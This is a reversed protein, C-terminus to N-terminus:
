RIIVLQGTKTQGDIGRVVYVYVGSRVEEGAGNRAYWVIKGLGADDEGQWVREGRVNFVKVSAQSPLNVFTIGSADTGTRGAGTGSQPGHPRFPVPFAYAQSVASQAVSILAFVSL